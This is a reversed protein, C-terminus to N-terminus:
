AERVRNRGANKAGYLAHDAKEILEQAESLDASSTAVGLSITLKGEPQTWAHPFPRVSVAARIKEAVELAEAKATETLLILFEEGGFRAVVDTERVHIRLLEAVQKLIVDGELHGHADNYNKFHDIDIMVVSLPHRYRKARLIEVQMRENLGRRNYLGTLPDTQSLRQIEAYLQANEIAAGLQNGIAQLLAVEGPTFRRQTVDGTGLAGVMKGASRLPVVVLSKWVELGTEARPDTATNEVELFPKGTEAFWGVVSQGPKM